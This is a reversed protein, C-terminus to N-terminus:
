LRELIEIRNGFPDEIYFRLADPLPQEDRTKVGNNELHRRFEQLNGVRIAPHAKKAPTFPEEIGIHLEMTGGSFWCGGNKQLNEPKTLEKFGLVEGYFRRAEGESNKPAALQVHDIGLISFAM